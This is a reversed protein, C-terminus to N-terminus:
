VEKVSPEFVKRLVILSLPLAAGALLLFPLQPSVYAYLFGVLLYVAGQAIYMFFQIFGVAKGRLERPVLDGMIIQSSNMALTHGLGFLAIAVVLLNFDAVVFLLMAPVHLLYGLILFRKRGVRDMRLGALIVPIATSLYMFAMVIAWQSATIKLVQTAYLVFYLQCSVVLGNIVTSTSFLYFASRSVKGWVQWCERACELYRRFADLIGRRPQRANFTLTEKLKLRLAAALLFAVLVITYALRMGMDSQPSVYRGNSLVLAAAILPAPLSVLSVIVTQLNFGIGRKNPPLSDIMMALLAPQYVLCLNQVILGLAIFQWSPALIYFIYALATGFSMTVILDRRGNADALYGGPIQVFAIALSGAFFIVSLLFPTAGLDLYYLSSYTDPIPQTLYMLIWTITLLLFNGKLSSRLFNGSLKM